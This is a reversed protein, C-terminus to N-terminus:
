AGDRAKEATGSVWTAPLPGRKKKEGRFVVYVAKRNPTYSDVEVAKGVDARWPGHCLANLVPTM